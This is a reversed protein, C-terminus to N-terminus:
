CFNYFREDIANGVEKWISIRSISFLIFVELVDKVALSHVHSKQQENESVSGDSAV